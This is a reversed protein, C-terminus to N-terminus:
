RDYAVADGPTRHAADRRALLGPRELKQSVAYAPSAERKRRICCELPPSRCSQKPRSGARPERNGQRRLLLMARRADRRGRRTLEVSRVKAPRSRVAARRCRARRLRGSKSGPQRGFGLVSVPVLVLLYSRLCGSGPESFGQLNTGVQGGPFSEYGKPTLVRLNTTPSQAALKGSCSCSRMLHSWGEDQHAADRTARLM